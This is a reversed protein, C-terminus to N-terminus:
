QKTNIVTLLDNIFIKSGDFGAQSIFEFQQRTDPITEIVRITKEIFKQKTKKNEAVQQAFKDFYPIVEKETMVDININIKILDEWELKNDACNSLKLLKLIKWQSQNTPLIFSTPTSLAFSELTSTLGSTTIFHKTNSLHKLFDSRSMTSFIVNPNNVKTKIYQIATNGGVLFLQHNLKANNLAISLLDLYNTPLENSFPNKVGGIHLVSFEKRKIKPQPLKGLIPPIIKINNKDPIKNKIDFINFCYYNDALLYEEPISKWMWALSDVFFSPLKLENAVKISFRNLTSVVIPSKYSSILDRIQDTDRENITKIIIKNKLNEPITEQCMSSAAYVIRGKWKQSLAQILALTKGTPGFGFPNSFFIVTM